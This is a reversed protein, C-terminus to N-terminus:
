KKGVSSPLIGFMETFTRSFYNPDKFGTEYAVESVNMDTTMLLEKAHSLRISRVLHSTSHNTLATIKRHLQTRSMGLARCLHPVSFDANDMNQHIIDKIKVLFADEIKFDETEPKSTLDGSQLQFHEKWKKRSDMLNQLTFLLENENFPKSLYADAGRSLGAIRDKVTAKATLLVIPIHSTKEDMKLTECVEFGDKLPMMIDSLIIDPIVKFAKEIGQQGNIAVETNFQAGLLNQLYYVIDPSDEIILLRPKDADLTEIFPNELKFSRETRVQDQLPALRTIPIWIKFCTGKGLESEVEIKGKTLKVLEKVLSLGIGSGGDSQKQSFDTQFFRSFINPLDEKPIGIGTDKVSLFLQETQENIERRVTFSVQGNPPTFKIANSLLNIVLQRMKTEDFDMELNELETLFRLNQNKSHALSSVSDVLYRLYSVIDGKKLDLTMKGSELRTLDLIQNIMGLLQTGNKQILELAYNRDQKNKEDEKLQEAMGNIVTLPTRFEHTINTYLKDKFENIDRLKKAEQKEKFLNKMRFALGTVFSINIAVLSLQTVTHKLGGLFLISFGNMFVGFIVLFTAVFLFYAPKEKKISLIVMLALISIYELAIYYVTIQDPIIENQTVLYYTFLVIFVPVRFRILWKFINDWKPLIRPLEVFSRIFYLYGIDMVTLALHIFPHRSFPYKLFIQIDRLIGFESMLFISCGLLFLFYYFFPLDRTAFYVLFSFAIMTLMFGFFLDYQSERKLYDDSKYPDNPYLEFPHFQPQHGNVKQLRIFLTLTANQLHTFLIREHKKKAGEEKESGPVLEGTKKIDIIKGSEDVVYIEIFSGEGSRMHWNNVVQPAPLDNQIMLKGWYVGTKDPLPPSYKQFNSKFDASIVEQITKHESTDQWVYVYDRLDYSEKVENIIFPAQNCYLPLSLLCIFWLALGKIAKQQHM